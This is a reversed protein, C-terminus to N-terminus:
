ARCVDEDGENLMVLHSGGSRDTCRVLQINGYIRRLAQEMRLIDDTEPCLVDTTQGHDILVLRDCHRLALQPDHLAVIACREGASIWRRILSIMRNRHRFDLASEPEDLLLLSSQSVLARALICLQKQGESLCLYNDKAREDLGVKRLALMAEEHMKRSPQELLKLQPNFGMLVVDLASIDIGIGSRQPIYSCVRALMRPPLGDLSAGNLMCTGSHPLIGCISKLLTTKGSGNAGLIAIMEGAKADFSVGALVQTGGYDASLREATFFSM